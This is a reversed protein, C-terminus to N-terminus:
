LLGKYFATDGLFGSSFIDFVTTLGADAAKAVTGISAAAICAKAFKMKTGKRTQKLNYGIM